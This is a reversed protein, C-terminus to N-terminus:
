SVGMLIQGAVAWKGKDKCMLIYWDEGCLSGCHHYVYFLAEDLDNNFAVTSFTFVSQPREDALATTKSLDSFTVLEYPQVLSFRREFRRPGNSDRFANAIFLLYAAGVHGNMGQFAGAFFKWVPEQSLSISDTCILIKRTPRGALDSSLRSTVYSSYILYQDADTSASGGPTYSWCAHAILIALIVVMALLVVRKLRM